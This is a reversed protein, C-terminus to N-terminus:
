KYMSVVRLKARVVRACILQGFDMVHGLSVLLVFEIGVLPFFWYVMSDGAKISM